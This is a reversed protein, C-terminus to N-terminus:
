LQLSEGQKIFSRPLESNLYIEEQFPPVELSLDELEINTNVGRFIRGTRYFEKSTGLKPLDGRTFVPSWQEAM